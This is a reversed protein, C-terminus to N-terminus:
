PTGLRAKGRRIATRKDNGHDKEKGGNALITLASSVKTRKQVNAM